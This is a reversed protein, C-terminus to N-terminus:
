YLLRVCRPFQKLLFRYNLLLSFGLQVLPTWRLADEDILIRKQTKIKEMHDSMVRENIVITVRSINNSIILDYVRTMYERILSTVVPHTHM